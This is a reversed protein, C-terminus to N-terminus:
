KQTSLWQELDKYTGIKRGDIVIQPVTKADPFDERFDRREVDDTEINGFSWKIGHRDLLLKAADCWQCNNKGYIFAKSM